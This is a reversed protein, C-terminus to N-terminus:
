GAKRRAKEAQVLDTLKCSFMGFSSRGKYGNLRRNTQTREEAKQVLTPLERFVRALPPAYKDLRNAADVLLQVVKSFSYGFQKCLGGFRDLEASWPYVAIWDAQHRQFHEILPAFHKSLHELDGDRQVKVSEKDEWWRFKQEPIAAPDGLVDLLGHQQLAKVATIVTQRSVNLLKAILSTSDKGQLKLYYVALQKKTLPCDPSPLYFKMYCIKDYWTEAGHRDAQVVIQSPQGLYRNGEKTTLRKEALRALVKPLTGTRDIGSLRALRTATLGQRHALLVSYALRDEFPMREGRVLTVFKIRKKDKFNV